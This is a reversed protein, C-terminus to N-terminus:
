KGLKLREQSNIEDAGRVKSGASIYLYGDHVIAQTGHRGVNLSPLNTWAGKKPDFLETEAHAAEQSGSEGGIVILNDDAVVTTSGARETPLDASPPLETWADSAIDYEDVEPITLEFSDGTAHSSRRGGIAYLKGDVVGAQFHDRKRPADSLQEWSEDKPDFRDLWNVHGDLHGNQIGGVVYIHDEYAVAGAAGRRREEPIEPGESWEDAAPDYIYIHSIPDEDPFDGTFAGVVYIKDEWSVAQFHHMQLPPTAGTEWNDNKPDYIQVAREGRGGILYFRDGSKVYANEHRELPEDGASDLLEWDVNQQAAASNSTSLVILLLFPTLVARFLNYPIM